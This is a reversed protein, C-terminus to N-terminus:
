SFRLFVHGQVLWSLMHSTSIYGWDNKVKATSQPSRDRTGMCYTPQIPGLAPESAISFLFCTAGDLCRVACKSSVSRNGVRNSCRHDEVKQRWLSSVYPLAGLLIATDGTSPLMTCYEAIGTGRCENKNSKTCRRIKLSAHPKPLRSQKRRWARLTGLRTFGKFLAIRLTETVIFNCTEEVCKNQFNHTTSLPLRLVIFM